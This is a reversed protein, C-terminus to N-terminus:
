SADMGGIALSVVPHRSGQIMLLIPFGDNLLKLEKESPIWASTFWGDEHVAELTHCIGEKSHDWGEPAGLRHTAGKIPIPRM